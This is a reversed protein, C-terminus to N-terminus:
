LQVNIYISNDEDDEEKPLKQDGLRSQEEQYLRADRKIANLEAHIAVDLRAIGENLSDIQRGHFGDNLDFSLPNALKDTPKGMAEKIRRRGYLHDLWGEQRTQSTNVEGNLRTAEAQLRTRTNSLSRVNDLRASIHTLVRTTENAIAQELEEETEPEQRHKEALKEMREEKLRLMEQMELQQRRAERDAAMAERKARNAKIQMIIADARAINGSLADIAREADELEEATLARTFEVRENEVYKYDMVGNNKNNIIEQKRANANSLVNNMQMLRVDEQERTQAERAEEAARIRQLVSIRRSQHQNHNALGQGQRDFISANRGEMNNNPFQFTM